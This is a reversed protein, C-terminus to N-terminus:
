LAHSRLQEPFRTVPRSEKRGTALENPLLQFGLPAPSHTSELLLSKDPSSGVFETDLMDALRERTSNEKQNEV